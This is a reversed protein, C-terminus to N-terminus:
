GVNGSQMNVNGDKKLIEVNVVLFNEDEVMVVLIKIEV